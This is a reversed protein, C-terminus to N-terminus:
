SAERLRKIEAQTNREWFSLDGRLREITADKAQLQSLLSQENHRFHELSAEQRQATVRLVSLELRAALDREVLDDTM